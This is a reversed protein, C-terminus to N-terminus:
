FSMLGRAPGQKHLESPCVSPRQLKWSARGIDMVESVINVEM